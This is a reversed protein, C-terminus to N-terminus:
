ELNTINRKVKTHKTKSENILMGTNVATEENQTVVEESARM